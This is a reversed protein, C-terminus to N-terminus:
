LSEVDFTVVFNCSLDAGTANTKILKITITYDITSGKLLTKAGDGTTVSFYDTNIIKSAATDEDSVSPTILVDLDSESKITLTVIVEDGVQKLIGDKVAVTVKDNDTPDIAVDVRTADGLAKSFYVDGDFTAIADDKAFGASGTVKLVDTLAAYGIGVALLAVILFAAIISRRKNM